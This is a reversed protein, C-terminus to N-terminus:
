EARKRIARTSFCGKSLKHTVTLMKIDATNGTHLETFTDWVGIIIYVLAALACGALVVFPLSVLACGALVVFPLSVLACGALV